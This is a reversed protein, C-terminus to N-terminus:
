YFPFKTYITNINALFLFKSKEGRRAVLQELNLSSLYSDLELKSRSTCYVIQEKAM